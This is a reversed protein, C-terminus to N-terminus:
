EVAVQVIPEGSIRERISIEEAERLDAQPTAWIENHECLSITSVASDVHAPSRSRFSSAGRFQTRCPSPLPGASARCPRHRCSELEVTNYQVQVKYGTAWAM